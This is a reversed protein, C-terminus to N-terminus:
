TIGFVLDVELVLRYGHYVGSGNGCHFDTKGRGGSYYGGEREGGARSVVVCAVSTESLEHSPDLSSCM